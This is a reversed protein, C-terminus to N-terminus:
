KTSPTAPTTTTNAPPNTTKPATRDPATVRPQSTVTTPTSPSRDFFAFFLILGLGLAIILGLVTGMGWGTDTTHTREVVRDRPREYETAM